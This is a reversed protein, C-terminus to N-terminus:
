TKTIILRQTLKEIIYQAPLTELCESIKSGNCGDKNCPICAKNQQIMIHPSAEQTGNTNYPSSNDKNIWNNPWAGWSKISSPGFLAICPTNVAAAIHMPASDVGFFLESKASLAGLQNLTLKGGFDIPQTKCLAIITKLKNIEIKNPACTLVVKLNLRLSFYDILKAMADDRWCKFIWRSVPHIHIIKQQGNWNNKTLNHTIFDNDEPQFYFNVSIDQPKVIHSILDLNKLITHKNHRTDWTYAKTIMAKRWWNDKEKLYGIRQTAGSLFGTIIGRDGETTNICLTFKKKRLKLIFKQQRMFFSYKSESDNREPLVLVESIEPNHTLMDETGSKVLLTIKPTQPLNHLASIMPTTLLVDGINRFKMILIKM